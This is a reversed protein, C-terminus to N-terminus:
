IHRSSAMSASSAVSSASTRNTAPQSSFWTCNWACNSWMIQQARGELRQNLPQRGPGAVREALCRLFAAADKIVGLGNVRQQAPHGIVLSPCRHRQVLYHRGNQTEAAGSLIGGDAYVHRIVGPGLCGYMGGTM